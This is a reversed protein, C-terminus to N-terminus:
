GHKVGGRVSFTSLIIVKTRIQEVCCGVLIYSTLSTMTDGVKYTAIDEYGLVVDTVVGNRDPVLLRQIICGMSSIHVEM